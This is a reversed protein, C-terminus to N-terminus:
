VCLFFLSVSNSSLPLVTYAFKEGLDTIENSPMCNIKIGIPVPFTSRDQIFTVKTVLATRLQNTAVQADVETGCGFAGLQQGDM